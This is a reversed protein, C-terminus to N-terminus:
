LIEGGRHIIVDKLRDELSLAIIIGDINFNIGFKKARINREQLYKKMEAGTPKVIAQCHPCIWPFPARKSVNDRRYKWGYFEAFAPYDYQKIQFCHGCIIKM